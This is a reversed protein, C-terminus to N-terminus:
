HPHASSFADAAEWVQKLPNAQCYNDIWAWVGAGDTNNLPDFGGEVGRFLNAQGSLYGVVWQTEMLAIPLDPERRVRTWSGCSSLGIGAMHQGWGQDPCITLMALILARRM